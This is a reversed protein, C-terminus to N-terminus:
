KLPAGGHLDAGRALEFAARAAGPVGAAPTKVWRPGQVQCCDHAQRAPLVSQRMLERLEAPPRNIRPLRQRRQM